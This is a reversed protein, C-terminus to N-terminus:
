EIETRQLARAISERALHLIQTAQRGRSGSV